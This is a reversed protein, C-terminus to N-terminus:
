ASKREETLAAELWGWFLGRDFAAWLAVDRPKMSWLPPRPFTSMGPLEGAKFQAQGWRFGNALAHNEHKYTRRLPRQRRRAM